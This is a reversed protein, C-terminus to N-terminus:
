FPSGSTNNSVPGPPPSSYFFAAFAFALVSLVIGIMFVNYAIRVLRYKKGLVTGLHYIDQVMSSYLYDSDKMMTRMANEYEEQKMKHFNGFFLLNTKKNIVDEDAFKGTNLKPRTALIAIVITTVAAVLFIITPITLYPDTQLKRLLVSLIVSIIIANVSILINAKSDAMESLQIHNSSTLRLMAQMGKTTGEKETITPGMKDQAKDQADGKKSLNKKLKKMNQKKQDNLMDGCYSTYFRHHKLMEYAEGNFETKSINIGKLNQLEMFALKNSEKFDKTGFHYTDADCIIEQLLGHPNRPHRTAMICTAVETIIDEPVKEKGAFENMTQVSKEEHEEAPGFLYGTDHFWAAMFVILMDKESLQYHGAIESTRNVVNKTHKLNHFVLQAHQNQEFLQTVHQEIKKYINTYDM